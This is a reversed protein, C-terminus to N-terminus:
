LFVGNCPACPQAGQRDKMVGIVGVAVIRGDDMVITLPFLARGNGHRALLDNIKPGLGAQRFRVPVRRVAHCAQVFICIASLNSPYLTLVRVKPLSWSLAM